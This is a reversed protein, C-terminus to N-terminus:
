FSRSPALINKPTTIHRISCTRSTHYTEPRFGVRQGQGSNSGRPAAYPVTASQYITGRSVHIKRAATSRSRPVHINHETSRACIRKSQYAASSVTAHCLPCFADLTRFTVVHAVECANPTHLHLM